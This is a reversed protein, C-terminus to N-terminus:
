DDDDDDDLFINVEWHGTSMTARTRARALTWGRTADHRSERSRGGADEDDRADDGRAHTEGRAEREATRDPYRSADDARMADVSARRLAGAGAGAGAVDGRTRV